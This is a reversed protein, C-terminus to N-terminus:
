HGEPSPSLLKRLAQAENTLREGSLRLPLIGWVSRVPMFNVVYTDEGRHCSVQLTNLNYVGQPAKAIDVSAGAPLNVSALVKPKGGFGFSAGGLIQLTSHEVQLVAAIPARVGRQSGGLGVVMAELQPISDSLLSIVVLYAAPHERRVWRVRAMSRTSLMWALGVVVGLGLSIGALVPANSSSTSAFFLRLAVWLLLLIAVAWMALAAETHAFVGSGNRKNM